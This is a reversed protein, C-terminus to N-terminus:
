WLIQEEFDKDLDENIMLSFRFIWKEMREPLLDFLISDFTKPNEQLNGEFDKSIHRILMTSYRPELSKLFTKYFLNKSVIVQVINMYYDYVSM